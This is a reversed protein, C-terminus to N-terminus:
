RKRDPSRWQDNQAFAAGGLLSTALVAVLMRTRM